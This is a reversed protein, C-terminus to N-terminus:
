RSGTWLVVSIGSISLFAVLALNPISLGLVRVQVAACSVTGCSGGSATLQLYSHYASVLTGLGSLPLVTRVVAAREEIAAVGLIVVLPYMLIRQVWCLECPILGMVESFYLSGGTAVLAVTTALSLLSRTGVEDLVSM